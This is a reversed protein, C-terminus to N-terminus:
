EGMNQLILLRNVMFQATMHIYFAATSSLLPNTLDYPSYPLTHTGSLYEFTSGPVVSGEAAVPM